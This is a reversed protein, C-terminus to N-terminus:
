GLARSDNGPAVRAGLKLSACVCVCVCLLLSIAGLLGLWGWLCHQSDQFRPKFGLEEMKSQTIKPLVKLTESDRLKVQPSLGAQRLVSPCMVCRSAM